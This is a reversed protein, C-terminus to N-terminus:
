RGCRMGCVGEGGDPRLCAAVCEEDVRCTAGEPKRRLCTGDHCVAGPECAGVVCAEGERANRGAACRGGACHAEPGCQAAFTCGEGLAAAAVCTRRVCAGSCEPHGRGDQRLYVALPDAGLDCATATAGATDCAGPETPGLGRCRLGIRCELASRCRAGRELKGTTLGQCAEPLAPSTPGLWGCGQLATDQAALCTSTRAGDLQVNGSALALSLVRTCEEALTAGPAGGCCSARREEPLGHLARCLARAQPDLKAPAGAYVPQM